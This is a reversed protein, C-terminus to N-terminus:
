PLIHYSDYIMVPQHKPAPIKHSEMWNPIDYDWSVFGYKEPNLGGVLYYGLTNWLITSRHYYKIKGDHYIPLIISLHNSIIM